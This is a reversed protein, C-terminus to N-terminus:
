KKRQQNKRSGEKGPRASVDRLLPVGPRRGTSHGDQYVIEGAVWVREIGRARARPEELTATDIVTAPDFLVMDATYGPLLLGRDTLGMHRAPLATMKQVAQELSLIGRERVYRGLVRPMSGAARPHMDHLAGDTCFNTHPWLMLQVIDDEHMSTAIVSERVPGGEVADIAKAALRVLDLLVVAPEKGEGRAIEALTKGEVGPRPEFEPILLHEPPVIERLVMEAAQQDDFNREPFLVTMSSHWYAYPYLDATVDIGKRRAEDLRELLRRAQGWHRRMGLKIHSIQVPLGTREGVLLVEEVAAWFDRDESRLHSIYRGGVDAVRQGLRLIEESEAYIGPEYELGTSLGLSGARLDEDLLAAMRRIEKPTAPRRFDDGLVEQRLNGHGTFSAVNVAAPSEELASWFSTLPFPSAGDQGIVVTTIGQSVAALADPEEFLEDESHSHTDIFGPALALSSADLVTEGPQPELEGVAAILGGAIRLDGRRPATGTGDVLLANEILLSTPGDAHGTGAM